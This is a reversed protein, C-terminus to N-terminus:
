MNVVITQEDQIKGFFERKTKPNRVRVRQGPLGDELAEVKMSITMTGELILAEVVRGRLVAPKIRVSRSLLPQGAQLMEAIELSGDELASIPLAERLALVDRRERTIDADRLLQGRKLTSQAVPVDRWVRAQAVLQWNGVREEGCVLEVRLVSSAGLGGAPRDVVKLALAEDPVVISAWPRAFRLELEGKEKVVDRQLVTTLMQKLETEDLQRSRRTVRIKPAGTLNTAAVEPAHQQLFEVVQASSLVIAQGWAPAPAVRVHQLPQDAPAELLQDLFVGSSDVQGVAKLQLGSAAGATATCLFSTAILGIAIRIYGICTM